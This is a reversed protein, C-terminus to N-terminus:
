SLLSDHWNKPSIVVGTVLGQSLCIGTAERTKGGGPLFTPNVM